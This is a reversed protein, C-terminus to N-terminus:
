SAVGARARRGRARAAATSTAVALAPLQVVADIGGKQAPLLAVRGGDSTVLRHVIALGLGYGRGDSGARWLRDFARAREEPSMGPGEDVVHLEIWSGNRAASVTIWTGPPSVDLANALLNDLVQEIRGPTARVLFPEAIDAVIFVESEAGLSSWAALREDVVERLGITEPAAAGGSRALALLGDVLSSLRGVEVLARELDARGAPAVDRSLNELRLRLAALPTRLQHAADAAFEDRLRILSELKEVTDNFSAALSRIEAPGAGTPARAELDGRGASAAAREVDRLPQSISRALLRGVLAAALLVALAIGGLVLWFRLARAGIGSLPHTVLVVGHVKGKTTVPVAAYGVDADLAEVYRTGTAVDNELARTFEPRSALGGPAGAKTPNTDVLVAGDSGAIVVRGGTERAYKSAIGSLTARDIGPRKAVLGESLMALAAADRELKRTLDQHQNRAYSVGLPIELVLLVFLALLLYSLLLRRRM